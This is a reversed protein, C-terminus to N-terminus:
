KEGALPLFYHECRSIASILFFKLFSTSLKTLMALMIRLLMVKDLWEGAVIVTLFHLAELTM